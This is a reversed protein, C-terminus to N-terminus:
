SDTWWSMFLKWDVDDDVRCAGDHRAEGLVKDPGQAPTTLSSSPLRIEDM